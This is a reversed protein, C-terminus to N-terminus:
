GAPPFARDLIGILEGIESPGLPAPRRTHKAIQRAQDVVILGGRARSNYLWRRRMFPYCLAGTVRIGHAGGRELASSVRQMQRELADIQRTRDRGNVVL